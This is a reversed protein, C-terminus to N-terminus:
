AVGQFRKSWSDIDQAIATRLLHLSPGRLRMKSASFSEMHLKCLHATRSRLVEAVLEPPVLEDLFGALVAQHQNYPTATIAALNLHAPSLRQRCVEVAFHPLTLGIQVENVQIKADPMTGIRVDACLLLFAGMAIAHGTCIALVPYPFKLMRETLEAGAKLMAFLEEKDRQFVALDFGGSFMGPRGQIVVVAKDTEARSLAADIAGLMSVSMVNAKGDDITITAVNGELDYRLSTNM